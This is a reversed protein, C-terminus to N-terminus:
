RWRQWLAFVGHKVEETAFQLKESGYMRLKDAIELGRDELEYVVDWPDSVDSYKSFEVLMADIFASISAYYANPMHKGMEFALVERTDQVDGTYISMWSNQPNFTRFDEIAKDAKKKTDSPMSFYGYVKMLFKNFAVMQEADLKGYGNAKNITEAAKLGFMSVEGLAEADLTSGNSHNDDRTHFHKYDPKFSAFKEIVLMIYQRTEYSDWAVMKSKVDSVFDLVLLKYVREAKDKTYRLGDTCASNYAGFTALNLEVWEPLESRTKTNALVALKEQMNM